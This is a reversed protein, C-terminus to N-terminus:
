KIEFISLQHYKQKKRVYGPVKPLSTSHSLIEQIGRKLRYFELNSVGYQIIINNDDYLDGFARYAEM